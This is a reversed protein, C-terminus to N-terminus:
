ADRNHQPSGGKQGEVMEALDNTCVDKFSLMTTVLELEHEDSISSTTQNHNIEEVLITTFTFISGPFGIGVCDDLNEGSPKRM